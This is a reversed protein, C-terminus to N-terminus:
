HAADGGLIGSRVTEFSSVLGGFTNQKVEFIVKVVSGKWLKTRICPFLNIKLDIYM